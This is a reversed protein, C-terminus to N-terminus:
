LINEGYNVTTHKNRFNLEVWNFQMYKKRQRIDTVETARGLTKTHVVCLTLVKNQYNHAFFVLTLDGDTSNWDMNYPVLKTPQVSQAM